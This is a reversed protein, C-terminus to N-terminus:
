NNTLSAVISFTFMTPVTWQIYNIIIKQTHLLSGMRNTNFREKEMAFIDKKWSQM